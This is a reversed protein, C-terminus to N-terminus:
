NDKIITKWWTDETFDFLTPENSTNAGYFGHWKIDHTLIVRKTAPNYVGHMGTASNEAYRVMIAPFVWETMKGKIKDKKEVYIIRWSQVLFNFWVRVSNGTWSEM